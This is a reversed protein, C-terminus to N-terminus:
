SRRKLTFADVSVFSPWFEKDCISHIFDPHDPVTVKFSVFTLPRADSRSESTLRRCNFHSADWGTRGQIYAVIQEETTPSPGRPLPNRSQPMLYPQTLQANNALSPESQAYNNHYQAAPRFHLPASSTVNQLASNNQGAGPLNHVSYNFSTTANVPVPQFGSLPPATGPAEAPCIGSTLNGPRIFQPAQSTVNQLVSYYRGAVPPNQGHRNFSTTTNVPVPQSGSLPPATGLAGAPCIGTTLNGPRIFQPAPPTVNQLVSYYRGAVPLNQGHRNFSTTTNVPVPQSGSLPPATGTAGAPCIGTTLNGPQIFHPAPSTVNQLASHYRGAVPPNQGLHYYSTTSNVPQIFQSVPFNANQVAPGISSTTMAVRNARAHRPTAVSRFVGPQDSINVTVTQIESSPAATVSAKAPCVGSSTDGSRFVFFARPEARSPTPLEAATSGTTTGCSGSVVHKSSFNAPYFEARNPTSQGVSTSITATNSSCCPGFVDPHSSFNVPVQQFDIPPAATGAAEAPCIGSYANGSHLEARSHTHQGVPIACTASVSSVRPQVINHQCPPNAILLQETVNPQAPQGLGPLDVAPQQDNPLGTSTDMATEYDATPEISPEAVDVSLAPQVIFPPTVPTRQIINGDDDFLVYYQSSQFDSLPPATVRGAEAPRSQAM